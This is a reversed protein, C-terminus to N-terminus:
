IQGLIRLTFTITYVIGDKFGSVPVDGPVVRNTKWELKRLYDQITVRSCHTDRHFDRLTSQTALTGPRSMTAPLFGERVLQVIECAAGPCDCLAVRIKQVGSLDIVDYIKTNHEGTYPCREGQHGFHIILGLHLLTTRKCFHGNWEEIQHLPNDRHKLLM